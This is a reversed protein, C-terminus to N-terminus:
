HDQEGRDDQKEGMQLNKSDILEIGTGDEFEKIIESLASALGKAMSTPIFIRQLLTAKVTQGHERSPALRYFDLAFDHLSSTIQVHNSYLDPGTQSTDAKAM